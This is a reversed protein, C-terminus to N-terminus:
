AAKASALHRSFQPHAVCEAKLHLIAQQILREVTEWALGLEKSIDQISRAQWFRMYVVAEEAQPLKSVAERVISYDGVGFIPTEWGVESETEQDM